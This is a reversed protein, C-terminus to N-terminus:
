WTVMCNKLSIQIYGMEDEKRKILAGQWLLHLNLKQKSTTANNRYKKVFASINQVKDLHPEFITVRRCVNGGWKDKLQMYNCM